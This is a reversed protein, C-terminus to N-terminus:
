IEEDKLNIIIEEDRNVEIKLDKLKLREGKYTLVLENLSYGEHCWDQLISVFKSLTM